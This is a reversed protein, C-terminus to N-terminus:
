VKKMAQSDTVLRLGGAILGVITVVSGYFLELNALVYDHSEPGIVGTALLLGAVTTIGSFILTKFGKIADM